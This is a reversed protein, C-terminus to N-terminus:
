LETDGAPLLPFLWSLDDCAICEALKLLWIKVHLIAREFSSHDNTKYARKAFKNKLINVASNLNYANIFKIQLNVKSFFSLSNIGHKWATNKRRVLQSFRMQAKGRRAGQCKGSCEIIMVQLLLLLVEWKTGTASTKHLWKFISTIHWLFCLFNLVMLLQM